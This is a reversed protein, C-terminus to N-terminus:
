IYQGPDTDIDFMLHEEGQSICSDELLSLVDDEDFCEMRTEKIFSTTSNPPFRLNLEAFLQKVSEYGKESLDVDEYIVDNLAKQLNLLYKDDLM